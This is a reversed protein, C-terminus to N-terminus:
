LDLVDVVAEEALLRAVWQRSAGHVPTVKGAERLAAVRAVTARVLERAAEAHPLVGPYARAFDGDPPAFAAGCHPSATVEGRRYRLPFARCALPRDEYIRCREDPAIFLCERTDTEWAFVVLRQREGTQDLAALAPRLRPVAGHAFAHSVYVAREESTMGLGDRTPLAYLGLAALSEFGLPWRPEGSAHNRCCTGCGTCSFTAPALPLM